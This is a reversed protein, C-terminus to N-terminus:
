TLTIDVFSGKYKFSIAVFGNDGVCIDLCELDTSNKFAKLLESNFVAQLQVRSQLTVCYYDNINIVENKTLAELTELYNQM